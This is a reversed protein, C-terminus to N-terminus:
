EIRAVVETTWPCFRNGAVVDRPCGDCLEITVSSFVISSPDYHWEYPPNYGGSGALTLGSIILGEGRGIRETAQAVVAPEVIRVHFAQGAPSGESGRCAMVEFLAGHPPIPQSGPESPDACSPAIAALSVLLAGRITRVGRSCM